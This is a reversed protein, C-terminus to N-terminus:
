LDFTKDLGQPAADRQQELLLALAGAAGTERALDCAASLAARDPPATELLFALGPLDREGVLWAAAEGAHARLYRLYQGEARDTLEAPYRLRWFALRVACGEDHEM